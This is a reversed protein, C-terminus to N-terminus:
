SDQGRGWRAPLLAIWACVYGLVAGVLCDSPWHVADLYRSVACGVALTWVLWRIPPYYVSLVGALAFAAASHGSPFAQTATERNGTGWGIWTQSQTLESLPAVKEIADQPRWRSVVWKASNSTIAVLLLAFLMIPIIRWRRRDYTAVLIVTVVIPVVQAFDRLGIIVQDLFGEPKKGIV